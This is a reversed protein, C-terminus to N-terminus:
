EVEKAQGNDWRFLKGTNYEVWYGQGIHTTHLGIYGITINFVNKNNVISWGNNLPEDKVFISPGKENGIVGGPSLGVGTNDSRVYWTDTKKTLGKVMKKFDNSNIAIKMAQDFTTIKKAESEANAQIEVDDKQKQIAKELNAKVIKADVNNADVKFISDLYKNAEDFKSSSLNDNAGKLNDAIYLKTLESVKNQALSYRKTDQKDVKKFSNVAGIYDKNTAQKIATNYTAKSKILLNALVIKKNVDSDKKYNLAEEYLTIAKDYEETAVAKTASSLTKNYVQSKNMYYFTAFILGIIIILILIILKKRNKM